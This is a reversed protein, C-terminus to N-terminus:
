WSGVEKSLDDKRWTRVWIKTYMELRENRAVHESINM